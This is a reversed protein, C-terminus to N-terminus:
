VPGDEWTALVAELEALNSIEAEARPGGPWDRGTRNVWVTRFGASAAGQVDHEPDDGVHVIQAPRTALRQCAAEFMPLEPKAAGVEIANLSFTFVDSLGILDVDANGNSLSALTYRQALRELVPRVEEFLEVANRAAYFVAFAAEVAFEAYGVRQAALRLAEKRLLTRDHAIAPWTSAIEGCLERLELPTFQAPIHPYHTTLWDHLLQEARIVVPWVDWLTDDLDFTIAKITTPGTHPHAVNLM